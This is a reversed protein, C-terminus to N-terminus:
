KMTAALEAATNKIDDEVTMKKCVECRMDRNNKPQFIKGCVECKKKKWKLGNVESKDVKVDKSGAAKGDKKEEVKEAKPGAAKGTKKEAAKKPKEVAATDTEKQEPAEDVMEYLHVIFDIKNECDRLLTIAKKFESPKM